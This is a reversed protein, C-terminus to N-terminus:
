SHLSKKTRHQIAVTKEECQDDGLKTGRHTLIGNHSSARWQSRIISSGHLRMLNTIATRVLDSTSLTDADADLGVVIQNMIDSDAFHM